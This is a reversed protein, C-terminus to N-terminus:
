VTSIKWKLHVKVREWVVCKLSKWISLKCVVIEFKIFIGSLEGFPYLAIQSFSLNSSVLLKEKEWLTRFIGRSCVRFFFFFFVSSTQSLTLIDDAVQKFKSWDLIKDDSLPNFRRKKDCHIAWKMISINCLSSFVSSYTIDPSRFNM